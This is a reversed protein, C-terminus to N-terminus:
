TQINWDIPLNHIIVLYEFSNLKIDIILFVFINFLGDQGCSTSSDILHKLYGCM